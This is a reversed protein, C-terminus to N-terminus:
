EPDGREREARRLGARRARGGVGRADGADPAEHRNRPYSFLGLSIKGAVRCGAAAGECRLPVYPRARSQGPNSYDRVLRPIPPLLMSLSLPLTAITVPADLPIPAAM